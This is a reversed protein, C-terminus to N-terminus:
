CQVTFNTIIAPSHQDTQILPLTDTGDVVIIDLSKSAALDEDITRTPSLVVDSTAGIKPINDVEKAGDLLRERSIPESTKSIWVNKRIKIKDGGITKSVLSTSTNEM